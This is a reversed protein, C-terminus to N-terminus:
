TAFRKAPQRFRYRPLRWLMRMLCQMFPKDFRDSNSFGANIMRSEKLGVPKVPM